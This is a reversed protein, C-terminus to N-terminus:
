KLMYYTDRKKHYNNDTNNQYKFKTTQQQIDYIVIVLFIIKFIYRNFIILLKKIWSYISILFTQFLAYSIYM